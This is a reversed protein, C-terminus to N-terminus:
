KSVGKSLEILVNFNEGVKLQTESVCVAAELPHFNSVNASTILILVYMTCMYTKIGFTLLNERKLNNNAFRVQLKLPENRM